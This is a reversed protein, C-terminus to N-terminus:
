FGVKENIFTGPGTSPGLSVVKLYFVTLFLTIHEFHKLCNMNHLCM